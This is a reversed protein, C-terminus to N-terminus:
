SLAVVRPSIRMVCRQIPNELANKIAAIFAGRDDKHVNYVYPPDHFKLGDHQTHWRLRANPNEQDWQAPYM